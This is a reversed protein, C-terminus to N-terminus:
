FKIQKWDYKDGKMNVCLNFKEKEPSGKLIQPNM